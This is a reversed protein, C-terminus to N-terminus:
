NERMEIRYDKMKSGKYIIYDKMKSGKYIIICAMPMSPIVGLM